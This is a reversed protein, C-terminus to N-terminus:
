LHDGCPYAEVECGFLQVGCRVAGAEDAALVKKGVTWDDCAVPVILFVLLGVHRGGYKYM